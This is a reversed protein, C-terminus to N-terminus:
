PELRRALQLVSESVQVTASFVLREAHQAHDSLRMASMAVGRCVASAGRGVYVTGLVLLRACSYALM